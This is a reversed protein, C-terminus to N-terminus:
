FSEPWDSNRREAIKVLRSFAFGAAWLAIIGGVFLLITPGTVSMPFINNGYPVFAGMEVRAPLITTSNPLNLNLNSLWDSTYTGDIMGSQVLLNKVWIATHMICLLPIVVLVLKAFRFLM